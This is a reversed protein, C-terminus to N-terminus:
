NDQLVRESKFQINKTDISKHLFSKRELKQSKFIYLNGEPLPAYLSALDHELAGCGAPSNPLLMEELYNFEDLSLSYTQASGSNQFRRSRESITYPDKTTTSEIFINL